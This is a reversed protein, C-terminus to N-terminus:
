AIPGFAYRLAVVTLFTSCTMVASNFVHVGVKKTARLSSCFGAAAAVLIAAEGDCLLMTLFIFTDSVTLEGKIRPIHIILRAGILATFLFLMLFRLDLHAARLGFLSTVVICAAAAAVLARFPKIYHQRNMVQTTLFD